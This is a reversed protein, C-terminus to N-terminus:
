LALKRIILLPDSQALEMAAVWSPEHSCNDVFRGLAVLTKVVAVRLLPTAYVNFKARESRTQRQLNDLLAYLSVALSRRHEDFHISKAYELLESIANLKHELLSEQGSRLGDVLYAVYRRTEISQYVSEKVWVSAANLAGVVVNRDSNLEITNITIDLVPAAQEPWWRLCGFLLACIPSNITVSADWLEKFWEDLKNSQIGGLSLRESFVRHIVSAMLRIRAGIIERVTSQVPETAARMTLRRGEVCWWDRLKNAADILEPETWELNVGNSVSLLLGILLGDDVFGITLKQEGMFDTMTELPKVQEGSLWRIFRVKATPARSPLPWKVFAAEYFNEFKPVDNPGVNRWILSAFRSKQSHTMLGAHYLWDLRKVCDGLEYRQEQPSLAEMEDLTQTVVSAWAISPPLKPPSSLLYVIDPWSHRELFRVGTPSLSLLRPGLRAVETAPLLRIAREFFKAFVEHFSYDDRIAQAGYLQMALECLIVAHEPELRFVVRSAIDLLLKVSSADGDEWRTNVTISKIVDIAQHFLSQAVDARLSAITSLELANASSKDEGSVRSFVRLTASADERALIRFCTLLNRSTFSVRGVSPPLSAREILRIYAVAANAAEKRVLPLRKGTPIVKSDLEIAGVDLAEEAIDLEYRIEDMLFNPHEVNDRANQDRIVENESAKASKEEEQSIRVSLGPEPSWSGSHAHSRSGPVREDAVDVAYGLAGLLWESWQERSLLYATEGEFQIAHRIALLGSEVFDYARRVVGVEGLLAGLRITWYPDVDRTAVSELENLLNIASQKDRQELCFLIREHLASCRLESSLVVTSLRNLELLWNAFGTSDSDERADRLMELALNARIHGLEEPLPQVTTAADPLAVAHKTANSVTHFFEEAILTAVQVNLRSLTTEFIWTVERLLVLRLWQPMLTANKKIAILLRWVSSVSQLRERNGAPAVLWGPYEHRNRRAVRLWEVLQPVTPTIDKLERGANHYPWDARRLPPKEQWYDLVAGLAKGYDVHENQTGLEAIDIPFIKRRELIIRQGLPIPSLTILYIPPAKDGLHDRAWGTWLLFNPDDGSFGILCFVNELMSQQVTNVLPAFDIPYRRYDEETVILETGSRLTGHLKVIRPRGNRKSLPVDDAAAVIQYRPKIVPILRTRDADLARELLTDYNTTFVDNWFLSLLKTHLDGPTVAGADPLLEHLRADLQARGRVAAYEEALRLMGSTGGFRKKANNRTEDTLYLDALLSDILKAWTPLRQGGQANLSFGAGIMVSAHGNRLADQVTRLHEGGPIRNIIETAVASSTPMANNSKTM